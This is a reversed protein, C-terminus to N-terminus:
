AKKLVKSSEEKTLVKILKGLDPDVMKPPINLGPPASKKASFEKNGMTYMEYTQDGTQLNENCGLMLVEDFAYNIEPGVMKGDVIPQIRRKGQWDQGIEVGWTGIFHVPHKATGGSTLESIDDLFAKMKKGYFYYAKRTDAAGDSNAVRNLLMNVMKSGYRMVSDFYLFDYGHDETKLAQFLELASGPISLIKKREKFDQPYDFNKIFYTPVEMDGITSQKNETTAYLGKFGAEVMKRFQHTKGTGSDGTVLVARKQEFDDGLM